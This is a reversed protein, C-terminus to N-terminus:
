ITKQIYRRCVGYINKFKTIVVVIRKLNNISGFLVLDTVPPVPCALGLHPVVKCMWPSVAVFDKKAHPIIRLIPDEGLMILM